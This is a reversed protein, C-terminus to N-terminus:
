VFMLMLRADPVAAPTVDFAQEDFLAQVEPSAHLRQRRAVQLLERRAVTLLWAQPADPVGDRPWCALAKLLAESLAVEAAAVDRWQYALWAVLKGYCERAAREAAAFASDM